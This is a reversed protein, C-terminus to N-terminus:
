RHRRERWAEGYANVKGKLMAILVSPKVQRKRIVCVLTLTATLRDFVGFRERNHERVRGRSRCYRLTELEGLLDPVLSRSADLRVRPLLGESGLRAFLDDVRLFVGSVVKPVGARAVVGLLM